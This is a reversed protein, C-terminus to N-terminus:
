AKRHLLEAVFAKNKMLFYCYFADAFLLLDNKRSITKAERLHSKKKENYNKFGVTKEEKWGDCFIITSNCECLKL